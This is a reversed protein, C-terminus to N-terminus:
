SNPHVCNDQFIKDIMHTCGLEGEYRHTGSADLAMTGSGHRMGDSWGGDYVSESNAFSMRGAGHRLGNRIGGQYTSGPWSYAQTRTRTDRHPHATLFDPSERPGPDGWICAGIGWPPIFSVGTGNMAGGKFDGEYQIGDPFVLRGHGEMHGDVFSGEYVAGGKLSIKGDGSLKSAYANQSAFGDSAEVILVQPPRLPRRTESVYIPLRASMRISVDYLAPEM